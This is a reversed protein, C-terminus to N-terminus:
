RYFLILIGQHASRITLPSINLGQGHLVLVALGHAAQARTGTSSIMVLNQTAGQHDTVVDVSYLPCMYTEPSKGDQDGRGRGGDMINVASCGKKAVMAVWGPM